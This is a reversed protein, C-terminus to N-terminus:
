RGWTPLSAEPVPSKYGVTVVGTTPADVFEITTVPPPKALEMKVILVTAGVLSMFHYVLDFHGRNLFTSGVMFCANTAEFMRGYRGVWYLDPRVRAVRRMWSCSAFVSFLLALYVVISLTGGEAAIQLYSNHAVHIVGRYGIQEGFELANAIYNRLGVGFVPNAQWMRIAVGWSDLRSRISSDEEKSAAISFIREQVHEPAFMLFCVFALALFMGVQFLKGSRWCIVAISTAMSLFGGRSHTLLITVVTFFIAVIAAKRILRNKEMGSLYFLLPINMALALAFDNNDELMGGPGRLITSGGTVFGMMGNKVSYFALSGCIVWMIARLRQKSDIQSITFIAILIIKVFEVYYRATLPGWTGALILGISIIFALLILLYTRIERKFFRRTHSEYVYWGALMTIAVYFSFRMNRAMGWCLNQPRMYALWSFLLLGVFPRKFCTPLLLVVFAIVVLDRM